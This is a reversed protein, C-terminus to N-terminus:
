NNLMIQCNECGFEATVYDADHACAVKSFLQMDNQYADLPIWMLSIGQKALLTSDNLFRNWHKSFPTAIKLLQKIRDRRVFNESNISLGSLLIVFLCLVTIYLVREQIKSSKSRHFKRLHRM